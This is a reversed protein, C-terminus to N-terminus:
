INELKGSETFTYENSKITEIIQEDSNQFDWDAESQKKYESICREILDSLSINEPKRMFEFIPSLVYNDMYYGTLSCAYEDFLFVKSDRKKSNKGVCNKVGNCIWYQKPKYIDKRFNNWIYNALRQGTLDIETNATGNRWNVFVPLIDVLKKISEQNESAWFNEMPRCEEIAVKKARESLEDFSYVTITKTKM